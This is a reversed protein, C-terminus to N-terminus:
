INGGGLSFIAKPFGEGGKKPGAKRCVGQAALDILGPGQTVFKVAM